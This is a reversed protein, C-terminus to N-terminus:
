PPPSADPETEFYAPLEEMELTPLGEPDCGMDKLYYSNPAIELPIYITWRYIFEWATDKKLEIEQGVINSFKLTKLQAHGPLFGAETYPIDLSIGPCTLTSESELSGVMIITVDLSCDKSFYGTVDYVDEYTTIQICGIERSEVTHLRMGSESGKVEKGSIILPIEAWMEWKSEGSGTMTGTHHLRLVLDDWVIAREGAIFEPAMVIDDVGPRIDPGRRVRAQRLGSLDVSGNCASTFLTLLILLLGQQIKSIRM